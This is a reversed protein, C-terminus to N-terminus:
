EGPPDGSPVRPARRIHARDAPRQYSRSALAREGARLARRIIVVQPIVAALPVVLLLIRAPVQVLLPQGGLHDVARFSWVGILAGLYATSIAATLRGWWRRVWRILAVCGAASM